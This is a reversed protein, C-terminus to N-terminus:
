IMRDRGLVQGGGDEVGSPIEGSVRTRSGSSRGMGIMSSPLGSLSSNPQRVQNSAATRRVDVWGSLSM